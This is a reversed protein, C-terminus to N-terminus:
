GAAVAQSKPGNGGSQGQRARFLLAPTLVLEGAEALATLNAQLEERVAARLASQREYEAQASARQEDDGDVEHRGVSVAAASMASQITGERAKLVEREAKLAQVRAERAARAGPSEAPKSPPPAAAAPEPRLEGVTGLVQGHVESVIAAASTFSAPSSRLIEAPRHYPAAYQRPTKPLTLADEWRRGGLFNCLKPVYKIDLDKWGGASQLLRVRTSVHELIDSCLERTLAMGDWVHRAAQEATHKPYVNWLASFFQDREASTLASGSSAPQSWEPSTSNITELPAPPLPAQVGDAATRPATPDPHIVRATNWTSTSTPSSSSSRTSRPPPTSATFFSFPRASYVYTCRDKSTMFTWVVRGDRTVQEGPDARRRRFPGSPGCIVKGVRSLTNRHCGCLTSLGEPGGYGPWARFEGSDDWNCREILQSCVVRATGRMTSRALWQLMARQYDRRSPQESHQPSYETVAPSGSAAALPSKGSSFNQPLSRM